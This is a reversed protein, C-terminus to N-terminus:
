KDKCKRVVAEFGRRLGDDNLNRSQPSLNPDLKWAERWTNWAATCDGAKAFCTPATTRLSAGAM